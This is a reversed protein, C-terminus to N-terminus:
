NFRAASAGAALERLVDFIESQTESLPAIAQLPVTVSFHPSTRRFCVTQCDCERSAILARRMTTIDRQWDHRTTLVFPGAQELMWSRSKTPLRRRTRGYWRHNHVELNFSPAGDLDAQFTLTEQQKRIRAALWSVPLERPILQVIASAHHFLSPALRMQVSFRSPSFWHLGAVQAHGRFAHEIWRLVQLGRRRNYRVFCCYWIVVLLAGALVDVVLIRVLM